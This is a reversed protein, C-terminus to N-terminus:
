WGFYLKIENLTLLLKIPDDEDFEVDIFKLGERKCAISWENECYPKTIRPPKDKADECSSEVKRFVDILEENTASSFSMLKLKDKELINEDGFGAAYYPCLCIVIQILRKFYYYIKENKTDTAADMSELKWKEVWDEFPCCYWNFIVEILKYFEVVDANHITYGCAAIFIISHAVIWTAKCRKSLSFPNPGDILEIPIRADAFLGGYRAFKIYTKLIMPDLISMFVKIPNNIFASSFTYNQLLDDQVFLTLAEFMGGFVFGGADTNNTDNLYAVYTSYADFDGAVSMDIFFSPRGEKVGIYERNFDGIDQFYGISEYFPYLGNQFALQDANHDRAQIINNHFWDNKSNLLYKLRRKFPKMHNLCGLMLMELQEASNLEKKEIQEDIMGLVKSFSSFIKPITFLHCYNSAENKEHIGLMYVDNEKNENQSEQNPNTGDERNPTNDQEADPRWCISGIYHHRSAGPRQNDSGQSKTNTKIFCKCVIDLAKYNVRWCYYNILNILRGGCVQKLRLEVLKPYNFQIFIAMENRQDKCLITHLKFDLLRAYYKCIRRLKFVYFCNIFCLISLVVDGNKLAAPLPPISTQKAATPGNPPQARRRKSSKREDCGKVKRDFEVASM